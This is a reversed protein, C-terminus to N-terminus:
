TIFNFSFRIKRTPRTSVHNSIFGAHKNACLKFFVRQAWRDIMCLETKVACCTVSCPNGQCKNHRSSCCIIERLGICTQHSTVGMKGDLRVGLYIHIPNRGFGIEFVSQRHKGTGQGISSTLALRCILIWKAVWRYLFSPMPHQVEHKGEWM